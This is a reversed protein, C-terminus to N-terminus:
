SLGRAYESECSEGHGLSPPLWWRGGKLISLTEGRPGCGLLIRTKPSGFALTPVGM